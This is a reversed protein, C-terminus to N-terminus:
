WRGSAGGGSSGGGGGFGGFGGGRGGGFGGGGGFVGGGFGGSGRGLSGPLFVLPGLGRRGRGLPHSFGRGARSRALTTIILLFVLGFVLLTGAPSGRRRAAAGVPLPEGGIAAQMAKVGASLGAYWDGSRFRPVIVDRIIRGCVSDTLTGELGRLVEIRIQREEKAVLLLAGDNVGERGIKWARTTELALQEIPRGGLEPLTLVALEHGTKKAYSALEEELAREEGQALIAARDTVWGDNAPLAEAGPAGASLAALLPLLM